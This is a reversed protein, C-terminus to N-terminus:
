GLVVLGLIGVMRKLPLLGLGSNLLPAQSLTELSAKRLAYPTLTVFFPPNMFYRGLPGPSLSSEELFRCLHTAGTVKAMM